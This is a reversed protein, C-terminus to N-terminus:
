SVHGCDCLQSRSDSFRGERRLEMMEVSLANLRVSSWNGEPTSLTQATEKLHKPLASVLHSILFPKLFKYIYPQM